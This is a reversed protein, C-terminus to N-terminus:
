ITDVELTSAEDRVDAKSTQQQEIRSLCRIIDTYNALWKKSISGTDSANSIYISLRPQHPPSKPRHRFFPKRIRIILYYM